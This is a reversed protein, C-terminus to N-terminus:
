AQSIIVIMMRFYYMSIRAQIYDEVGPVSRSTGDDEKRTHSALQLQRALMAVTAVADAHWGGLALSDSFCYNLYKEREKAEEMVFNWTCPYPSPPQM